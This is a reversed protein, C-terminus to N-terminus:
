KRGFDAPIEGWAETEWKLIPNNWSNNHLWKEARDVMDFLQENAASAEVKTNAKKNRVWAMATRSDTYIPLNINNKKCWALAHVIALFEGINNSAKPYPGMKFLLQRSGTHVGQYEMQGTVMNCAADVSISESIPKGIAQLQRPSMAAASPKKGLHKWPNESFAKLAEDKNEFSKYVAGEFGQVSRRCADWSDFM